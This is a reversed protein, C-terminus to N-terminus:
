DWKQQLQGVPGQWKDKTRNAEFRSAYDYLEAAEADRLVITRIQQPEVSMFDRDDFARMERIVNARIEGFGVAGNDIERLSAAIMAAPAYNIVLSSPRAKGDSAPPENSIAYLRPTPMIFALGSSLTDPMPPLTNLGLGKLGIAESQALDLLRKGEIAAVRRRFGPAGNVLETATDVAMFYAYQFRRVAAEPSDWAVVFEAQKALRTVPTLERVIEPRIAPSVSM